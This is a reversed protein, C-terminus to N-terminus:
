VPLDETELPDHLLNPLGLFLLLLIDQGFAPGRGGPKRNHVRSGRFFHSPVVYVFGAPILPADEPVFMHDSGSLGKKSMRYLTDPGPFDGQRAFHAEELSVHLYSHLHYM